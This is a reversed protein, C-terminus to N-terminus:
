HSHADEHEHRGRKAFIYAALLTAIPVAFILATSGVLTRILEEAVIETNLTVWIPINENTSFLLLLPMASGTYALVLTNVLSAIHEEGVSIGRKYLQWVGLTPDAKSIEDVAATQATTVDDLVGLVGIIIGGLLLGQLSITELRGIKLYLAEESGTGYLNSGNVFVIALFVAIVITILTSVLAVTTRKNFGHALFLSVCAIIISGSLSVVLPNDGAIIRPVIYGTLVLISFALGLISTLGKFGGLLFTLAFFIVFIVIISSLRYKESIYFEPGNVANVKILVVEEGAKVTQTETPIATITNKMEFTEGALEGSKIQVTILQYKQEIGINPDIGEENVSLVEALYFEDKTFGPTDQVPKLDTPKIIWQQTFGSPQLVILAFAAIFIVTVFQKLRVNTKKKPKDDFHHHHAHGM